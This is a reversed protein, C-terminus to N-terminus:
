ERDSKVILFKGVTRKGGDKDEVSFLYLGTAAAQGERTILDWAFTTGSLTPPALPTDRPGSYLGRASDGNYTSGDFSREFVLDGSLTFIRLTCRKPLKTFWLYHDRVKQNQDWRAEVRYPNPFVTPGIGPRENSTPGPIALALNQTQGSELPEILNNGRDYATIAAFYKFGNRLGHVTYKYNYLRGDLNVPSALKVADFGTNFGTTDGPAVNSDFESVRVLQDRAEGVYIRYGEFDHPDPSTPDVALESTNDWYLDLSEDRAVIKMRPSPPPIPVIYNLDYARQAVKANHQLDLVESGGVLAFDVTVSSDTYIRPFPGAAFVACPDGSAPQLSDGVLPMVGRTLINYRQADFARFQSSPAWSWAQLTVGRHTTTDEALGKTGLLKIGVWYPAREYHCGDPIPLNSCYHERYLHLSDDYVIQKKNFWSGTGSPDTSSPPWNTYANKNGSALESYIGVYVNTLLPGTNKIEYHFFLINAFDSFSWSYNSQTILLGMPRSDELNSAARKAPFDSFSGIVDQESVASSSYFPDTLLISRRIFENGAPTYETAAQSNNSTAGDTTGTAVDDAEGNLISHAGVWLGGRVMHEYGLGAPYEFSSSRSIFNNGIFGYNTLTVALKNNSTVLSRFLVSDVANVTFPDPIRLDRVDAHVPLVAAVSALGALAAVRALRRPDIRRLASM